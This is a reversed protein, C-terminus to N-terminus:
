RLFLGITAVGVLTVVGAAIIWIVTSWGFWLGIFGFLMLLILTGVLGASHINM